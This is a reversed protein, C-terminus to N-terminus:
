AFDDLRGADESPRCRPRERPEIEDCESYEPEARVPPAPEVGEERASDLIVTDLWESVSMGSRRAAEQATERAQQRVKVQWTVGPKMGADPKQDPSRFGSPGEPVM